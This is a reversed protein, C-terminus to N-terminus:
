AGEKNAFRELRTEALQKVVLMREAMAQALHYILAAEEATAHKMAHDMLDGSAEVLQGYAHPIVHPDPVLDRLDPV